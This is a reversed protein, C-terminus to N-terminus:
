STGLTFSFIVCRTFILFVNFLTHLERFKTIPASLMRLMLFLLLSLAPKNTSLLGDRYFYIHSHRNVALGSSELLLVPPELGGM